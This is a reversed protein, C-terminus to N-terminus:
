KYYTTIEIQYGDPDNIFISHAIGTDEPPDFRIGLSRLKTQADAFGHTTTLFAFHTIALTNDLDGIKAANPRLFLGIRMSGRRIMWTTNWKHVIKFGLVREYWDASKQLDTVNLGVHDLNDLEITTSTESQQPNGFGMSSTLLFGSVILAAVVRRVGM